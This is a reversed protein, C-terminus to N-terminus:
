GNSLKGKRFCISSIILEQLFLNAKSYDQPNWGIILQSHQEPVQPSRATHPLVWGSSSVAPNSSTSFVLIIVKLSVGRTVLSEWEAGGRLNKVVQWSGLHVCTKSSCEWALPCCGSFKLWEKTTSPDLWHSQFHVRLSGWKTNQSLTESFQRPHSLVSEM